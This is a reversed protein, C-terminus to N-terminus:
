YEYFGKGSKRGLKGESVLTNLLKPPRLGEDNLGEAMVNMISQCTDLGILDALALPGMPMNCCDVMCRDIDERESVGQEFALIAERIMPMLIRNAVFGAKDESRVFSKGLKEVLTLIIQHTEESTNNTRIIEVGKMLPVPNMFHMGLVKGPRDTAKELTQIPISSTNSALIADSNTVRDLQAFIETILKPNETAAEIALQVNSLDDLNTTSSLHSLTQNKSAEDLKGKAVFKSLSKEIGAISKQLQAENIDYIIVDFGSAAFVQAIGAGM